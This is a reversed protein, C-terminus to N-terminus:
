PSYPDTISVKYDVDIPVLVLTAQRRHDLWIEPSDVFLRYALGGCMRDAGPGAAVDLGIRREIDAVVRNIRQDVPVGPEGSGLLYVSVLFPQRWCRHTMTPKAAEEREGMELITTLDEVTEAPGELDLPRSVNLSYYYGGAPTIQRLAALLWQAIREVLPESM